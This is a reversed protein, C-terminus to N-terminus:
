MAQQALRLGAAPDRVAQATVYDFYIRQLPRLRSRVGEHVAPSQGGLIEVVGAAPHFGDLIAEIKDDPLETTRAIFEAFFQVYTLPTAGGVWESAIDLWPVQSVPVSSRWTPMVAPIWLCLLEVMRRAYEVQGPRASSLARLTSELDFSAMDNAVDPLPVDREGGGRGSRLGLACALAAEGASDGQSSDALGPMQQALFLVAAIRDELPMRVRRPLVANRGRLAAARVAEDRLTEPSTVEGHTQWAQRLATLEDSAIRLAEQTAITNTEVFLAFKVLGPGVLRRNWRALTDVQGISLIPYRYERGLRRPRRVLQKGVWYNITRRSVDTRGAEHAVAVLDDVTPLYNLAPM